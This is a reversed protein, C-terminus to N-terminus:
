SPPVDPRAPEFEGLRLPENRAVMVGRRAMRDKEEGIVRGQPYSGIVRVPM